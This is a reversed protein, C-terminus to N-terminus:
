ARGKWDVIEEDLRSRLYDKALRLRSKVTNVPVQTAAATEEV